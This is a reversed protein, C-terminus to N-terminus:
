KACQKSPVVCCLDHSTVDGVNSRDWHKVVHLHTLYPEHSCKASKHDFRLEFLLTPRSSAFIYTTTIRQNNEWSYKNIKAIAQNRSTGSM